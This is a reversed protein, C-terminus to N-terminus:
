GPLAGLGDQVQGLARLLRQRAAPTLPEVWQKEAAIVLPEVDRLLSRGAPTLDVLVRRGDDPHPRRRVLGKRQCTDLLGTVTATTVAVPLRRAVETPTLAEADGDLIQLLNFASTTLGHPRLVADLQELVRGATVLLNIVVETAVPDAEPHEAVYSESVRIHGM